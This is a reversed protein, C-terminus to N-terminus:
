KEYFHMYNEQRKNTQIIKKKAVNQVYVEEGRM